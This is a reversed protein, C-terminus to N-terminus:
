KRWFVHAKWDFVLIFSYFGFLFKHSPDSKVIGVTKWSSGLFLLKDHSSLIFNPFKFNWHTIGQHHSIEANWNTCKLPPLPEIKDIEVPGSAITKLFKLQSRILLFSSMGQDRLFYLEWNCYLSLQLIWFLGERGLRLLILWYWILSQFPWM